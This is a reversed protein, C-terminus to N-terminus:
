LKVLVGGIDLLAEGAREAQSVFLIDDVGLSGGGEAQGTSLEVRVAQSSAAVLSKRGGGGCGVEGKAGEVSEGDMGVFVGGGKFSWRLMEEMGRASVEGAVVVGSGVEGGAVV